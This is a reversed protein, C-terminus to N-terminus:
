YSGAKYWFDDDSEMEKDFDNVGELENQESYVTAQM